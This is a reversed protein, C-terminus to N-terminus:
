FKITFVVPRHDPGAMDSFEPKFMESVVLPTVAVANGALCWDLLGGHIQTKDDWCTYANSAVPLILKDINKYDWNMDGIIGWKGSNGCLGALFEVAHQIQDKTLGTQGSKFHSLIMWFDGIQLVLAGRNLYKLNDQSVTINADRRILVVYANSYGGPLSYVDYVGGYVEKTFSVYDDLRASRVECLFIISIGYTRCSVDIFESVKTQKEIISSQGNKEVNWSVVTLEM